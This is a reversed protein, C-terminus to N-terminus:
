ENLIEELKKDLEEIKVKEKAPRDTKKEPKKDSIARDSVKGKASLPEIKDVLKFDFSEKATKSKPKEKVTILYRIIDDESDLQQQFQNLAAPPLSFRWSSYFAEQHKKIPYSLKKKILNALSTETELSSISGGLDAIAQKIKRIIENLKAQELLPSFLCTIQYSKTKPNM